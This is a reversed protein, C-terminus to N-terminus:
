REDGSIRRLWAAAGAAQLVVLLALVAFLGPGDHMAWGVRAGCQVTVVVIAGFLAVALIAVDRRGYRYFAMVAGTVLLWWTMAPTWSVDALSTEIAAYITLGGVLWMAMLRPGAAWRAWALGPRTWGAEWAMLLGGNWVAFAALTGSAWAEGGEHGWLLLAVNGILIWLLCLVVSRGAVVWPLMLLAWLAFLQWPDAGTQYTQGVQALVAGLLVCAVLLLLTHALRSLGPLLTAAAALVMAVQLGALRMPASIQAWNAAVACVVASALMVCGLWAALQRMFDVWDQQGPVARSHQRVYDVGAPTLSGAMRWASIEHRLRATQYWRTWMASTFELVM